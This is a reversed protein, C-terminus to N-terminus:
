HKDAQSPTPLNEATKPAGGKTDWNAVKAAEQIATKNPTGDEKVLGFRAASKNLWITLAEKVSRNRTLSPDSDVAQWAELAAALKPAYHKHNADLYAVSATKASFFFGGTVNRSELWARIDEVSITTRHWDPEHQLAVYRGEHTRAVEVDPSIPEELWGYDCGQHIVHARLKGRRIANKVATSVAEYGDPRSSLNTEVDLETHKPDVGIILLICQIVSLDVCMRWYDLSDMASGFEGSKRFM